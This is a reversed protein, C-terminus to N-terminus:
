QIESGPVSNQLGKFSGFDKAQSSQEVQKDTTKAYHWGCFFLYGLIIGLLVAYLYETKQKPKKYPYM